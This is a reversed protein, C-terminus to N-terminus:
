QWENDDADDGDADCDGDGSGGRGTGKDLVTLGGLGVLQQAASDWDLM